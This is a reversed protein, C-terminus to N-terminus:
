TNISIFESPTHTKIPPNSISIHTLRDVGRIEMDEFPSSVRDWILMYEDDVEVMIREEDSRVNCDLACSVEYREMGNEDELEEDEDVYPQYVYAMLVTAIFSLAVFLVPNEQPIRLYRFFSM